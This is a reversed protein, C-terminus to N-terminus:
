KYWIIYDNLYKLTLYKLTRLNLSYVELRMEFLDINVDEKFNELLTKFCNADALEILNTADLKDVL